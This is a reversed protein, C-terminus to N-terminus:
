VTVATLAALSILYTLRKGYQLAFPQWFLLGWGLFLFMYGTGANLDSITVSLASSLPVIVSYVVSLAIGNFWTYLLACALALYKRKPSWNLPDEPDSSPTPVLVIDKQNVAHRTAMTHQLDILHVTGPVLSEDIEGHNLMAATASM